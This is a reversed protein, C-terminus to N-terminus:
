NRSRPAIKFGDAASATGNELVIKYDFEAPTILMRQVPLRKGRGCGPVIERAEETRTAM